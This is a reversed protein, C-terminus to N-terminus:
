NYKVLSCYFRVPSALVTSLLVGRFLLIGRSSTSFTNVTNHVLYVGKMNWYINWIIIYLYFQVGKSYPWLRQTVSWLREDHLAKDPQFHKGSSYIALDCESRAIYEEPFCKWGSLDKCSSREQLTVWINLFITPWSFTM